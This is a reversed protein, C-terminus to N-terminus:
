RIPLGTTPTVLEAFSLLAAEALEIAAVALAALMFGAAAAPFIDEVAVDIFTDLGPTGFGSAALGLTGAGADDDVLPADFGALGSAGLAGAGADDDALPAGLGRASVTVLGGVTLGGAAGGLLAAIFVIIAPESRKGAAPMIVPPLLVAPDAPDAPDAALLSSSIPAAAVSGAALAATLEGGTAAEEKLGSSANAKPGTPFEAAVAAGIAGLAAATEV